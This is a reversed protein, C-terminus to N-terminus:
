KSKKGWSYGVGASVIITLQTTAWTSNEAPMGPLFVILVCVITVIGVIVQIARLILVDKKRQHEADAEARRRRSALEQKRDTLDFRSAVNGNAM